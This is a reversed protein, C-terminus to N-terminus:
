APSYRGDRFTLTVPTTSNFWAYITDNSDISTIAPIGTTRQLQPHCPLAIRFGNQARSDLQDYTYIVVVGAVRDCDILRPDFFVASGGNATRQFDSTTLGTAAEAPAFINWGQRLTVRSPRGLGASDLEAESPDGGRFVITTGASLRASGGSAATHKIWRQSSNSWSFLSWGFGFGLREAIQSPRTGTQSVVHFQWTHGPSRVAIERNNPDISANQASTLRVTLPRGGAALASDFVRSVAVAKLGAEILTVGSGSTFSYNVRVERGSVESLEVTFRLRDGQISATDLLVVPPDDNDKVIGTATSGAPDITAGGTASTLTIRITQDGEDLNDDGTPISIETATQGSDITATGTVTDGAGSVRYNLQVQQVAPGLLSARFVLPDGETVSGASSVSAVLVPPDPIREATYTAAATRSTSSIAVSAATSRVLRFRPNVASTQSPPFSVAYVCAATGAKKAVLNGTPRTAATGNAALSVSVNSPSSCGVGSTSAISVNITTGAHNTESLTDNATVSVTGSFTADCDNTVTFEVSTVTQSNRSVERSDGDVSFQLTGTVGRVASGANGSAGMPQASVVCDSATNRFSLSWNCDTTGLSVSQSANQSAAPTLTPAQSPDPTCTGSGYTIVVSRQAASSHGASNAATANSLGLTAARSATYAASATASAAGAPGRFSVSTDSTRLQVESGTGFRSDVSRPFAATYVCQSQNWPKDILNSVTATATTSTASNTGLTITANAIGTSCGTGTSSVPVTITTRNHNDSEDDTVTVSLTGNFTTTCTDSVTFEASGVETSTTALLTRRSSDVSLLLTHGWTIDASLVATGDPDKVRMTIGCDDDTNAVTFGWSCPLTGLTVTKSKASATDLVFPASESVPCRTGPSVIPTIVVKRQDSSHSSTPSTANVLTITAPRVANFRVTVEDNAASLAPPTGVRELVVTTSSTGTSTVEAPFTVTYSCTAGGWIKGILDDVDASATTMATTTAGLTIRVDPVTTCGSGVTTVPATLVTTAHSSAGTDTVSVNVEGDFFTICNAGTTDVSFKITGVAAAGLKTVLNDVSLTLTGAASSTSTVPSASLANGDTGYAQASVQCNSLQNRFRLTLDCDTLGLTVTQTGAPSLTTATSPNAACGGSGPTVVVNAMNALRHNAHNATTSNELTVTAAYVATYAASATATSVGDTDVTATANANRSLIVNGTTLKRAEFTVTYECTDSSSLPTKALSQTATATNDSGLTLPVTVTTCGTPSTSTPEVLVQLVTGQYSGSQDDTVGTISFTVPITTFCMETVTFEIEDVVMRAPDYAKGTGSGDRSILALTGVGGASTVAAGVNAGDDKQQASVQCDAAANQYQLTWGCQLVGLSATKTQVATLEIAAPADTACGAAPTLTVEVNRRTTPTHSTSTGTKNELTLQTLPKVLLLATSDAVTLTKDGGQLAGFGSDAPLTIEYECLSNDDALAHLVAPYSNHKLKTHNAFYEYLTTDQSNSLEPPQGSGPVVTQSSRGQVTGCNTQSGINSFAIVVESGAPVSQTQLAVSPYFCNYFEIAGVETANGGTSTYMVGDADYAFPITEASTPNSQKVFGLEVPTSAASMIRAAARCSSNVSAFRLQWTCDRDLVLSFPADGSALEISDSVWVGQSSGPLRSQSAVCDTFSSIEQNNSMPATVTTAASLEIGPSELGMVTSIELVSACELSVANVAKLSEPGAPSNDLYANGPASPQGGGEDPGPANGPPLGSGALEGTTDPTHPGPTDVTYPDDMQGGPFYAFGRLADYVEGDERAQQNFRRSADDDFQSSQIQRLQLSVSTAGDAALVSDVYELGSEGFSWVAAAECESTGTFTVEWDCDRRLMHQYVGPADGFVMGDAKTQTGYGPPIPPGTPDVVLDDCASPVLTYTFDGAVGSDDYVQFVTTGPRELELCGTFEVSGVAASQYMLGSSDSELNFGGGVLASGAVWAGIQMGSTDLVRAAATCVLLDDDPGCDTGVSSPNVPFGAAPEERPGLPKAYCVLKSPDLERCDRPAGQTPLLDYCVRGDVSLSTMGTSTEFEIDWDCSKDLALSRSGPTTDGAALMIIDGPEEGTGQNVQYSSSDVSCAAGDQHPAVDLLIQPPKIDFNNKPASGDPSRDSVVAVPLPTSVNVLTVCSNTSNDPSLRVVDVVKSNDSYTIQEGTADGSLTLVATTADTHHVATPGVAEISRKVKCPNGATVEAVLAWDCRYDLYHVYENGTVDADAVSLNVGTRGGSSCAQSVLNYTKTNLPLFEDIVTVKHTNAPATPGSMCANIEVSGVVTLSGGGRPTHSLGQRLPNTLVIVEHSTAGAAVSIPASGIDMDSTDKFQISLACDGLGATFSLDWNCNPDLVVNQSERPALTVKANGTAPKPPVPMWEEPTCAANNNSALVPKFEIVAEQGAGTASNSLEITQGCKDAANDATLHLGEVGNRSTSATATDYQFWADFKRTPVSAAVEAATLPLNGDLVLSGSTVTAANAAAQSVLRVQATVECNNTEDAFSFEWDCALNLHHTIDPITKTSDQPDEVGAFVDSDFGDARAQSPPPNIGVCRVAKFQYTVDVGAPSLDYVPVRAHNPPLACDGFRLWTVTYTLRNEVNEVAETNPDDVTAPDDVLTRPHWNTFKFKMDTSNGALYLSATEGPGAHLTFWNTSAAMATTRTETNGDEDTVQFRVRDAVRFDTGVADSTTMRLHATCAPNASEFQVVWDCRYDLHNNMVNNEVLVNAATQKAPTRTVAADCDVPTLTYVVGSDAGKAAGGVVRLPATNPPPGSAFNVQLKGTTGDTETGSTGYPTGATDEFANNAVSVTVSATATGTGTLTAEWTNATNAKPGFGSLSAVGSAPTLTIDSAIFGTIPEIATFTLKTNGDVALNTSEATITMTPAVTDITLMVATSAPSITDGPATQTATVTWVGDTDLDCSEDNGAGCADDAFNFNVSATSVNTKTYVKTAGDAHAATVVVTAGSTVGTVRFTPTDDSTKKDADAGSGSGTDTGVYELTPADSPGAAANVTVHLEGNDGNTGSPAANDNGAADTFEDAAVELEATGASVATLTATHTDDDVETFNSLTAVSTNVTVHDEPDFDTGEESVEFTITAPSGGVTLSAPNASIEVTPTMTDINLTLPSVTAATTSGDPTHTGTIVWEGHALTETFDIDVSTAGAPVDATASVTDSGKTATLAVTAEATANSVTVKPTTDNTIADGKDGSDSTDHLAAFPACPLPNSFELRDVAKNTTNSSADYLVEDKVVALVSQADIPNAVMETATNKSLQFSGSPITAHTIDPDAAVNLLKVTAVCFQVTWDCSVALQHVLEGTASRLLGNANAQASPGTCSSPTLSYEVNAATASTTSGAAPAVAVQACSPGYILVETVSKFARGAKFQLRTDPDTADDLKRNKLLTVSKRSTSASINKYDTSQDDGLGIEIGECVNVTWDCRADVLHTNYFRSHTHSSLVDRTSDDQTQSAPTTVGMNCEVPVLSWKTNALELFSPAASAGPRVVRVVVNVEAICGPEVKTFNLDTVSTDSDTSAAAGSPPDYTLKDNAASKTLTFEAKNAVVIAGDANMLATAGRSPKVTAGCFVVNWSCRADLVHARGGGAVARGDNQDQAPATFGSNCGTPSLTYIVRAAIASTSGSEPKVTVTKRTCAQPSFFNMRGVAKAKDEASAAGLWVLKNENAVKTLKFSGDNINPRLPDPDNDSPSPLESLVIGAQCFEVQWSCRSDLQHTTTGGTTTGDSFTQVAPVTVGSDCSDPVPTFSYEINADSASRNGGSEEVTITVLNNDQTQAAAPTPEPLAVALVVSAAIALVMLTATLPKAVSAAVSGLRSAAGSPNGAARHSAPTATTNPYLM